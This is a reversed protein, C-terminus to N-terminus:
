PSGGPTTSSLTATSGAALSGVGRPKGTGLVIMRATAGWVALAPATPGAVLDTHVDLNPFRLRVAASAEGLINAGARRPQAIAPGQGMVAVDAILYLPEPLAHVVQLPEGTRAALAAAWVAAARAAPSGDVGVVVVRGSPTNM